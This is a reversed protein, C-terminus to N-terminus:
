YLLIELRENSPLTWKIEANPLFAVCFKLYFIIKFPGFSNFKLIIVVKFNAILQFVFLLLTVKQMSLNIFNLYYLISIFKGNHM